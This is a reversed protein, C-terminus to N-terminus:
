NRLDTGRAGAEGQLMYAFGRVGLLIDLDLM